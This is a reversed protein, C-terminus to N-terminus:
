RFFLPATPRRPHTSAPLVAPECSSCPQAARQKAAASAGVAWPLSAPFHETFSWRELFGDGEKLLARALPRPLAANGRAAPACLGGHRSVLLSPFSLSPFLRSAPAGCPQLLTELREAPEGAVARGECGCLVGFPVSAWSDRFDSDPQAAAKSYPLLSTVTM